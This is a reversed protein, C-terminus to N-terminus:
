DGRGNQTPTLMWTLWPPEGENITHSQKAALTKQSDSKKRLAAEFLFNQKHLGFPSNQVNRLNLWQVKIRVIFLVKKDKQAKSNNLSAVSVTCFSVYANGKINQAYKQGSLKNKKTKAHKSYIEFAKTQKIVIIVKVVLVDFPYEYM